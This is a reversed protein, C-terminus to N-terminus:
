TLKSFFLYDSHFFRACCNLPFLQSCYFEIFGYNWNSVKLTSHLSIKDTAHKSCFLLYSPGFFCFCNTRGLQRITCHKVCMKIVDPDEVKQFILIKQRRGLSILRLIQKEKRRSENKRYGVRLSSFILKCKVKVTHRMLIM